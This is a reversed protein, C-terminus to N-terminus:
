RKEVIDTLVEMGEAIDGSVETVLGDTPGVEVEIATPRGNRLVWLRKGANADFSPAGPLGGQGPQQPPVFRLAANPVLLVDKRTDAMISATATMGPRLLLEGNDVALVAEYSVVNQETKPENRLSLVKSAFKRGPYADVTFSAEQGEKVRGVDAEDVYVHLSMRSLDETLKFLVPTQFGANVTQGPEILRSLVIGSIPAVIKTRELRYEASKLAARALTADAQASALNAEARIAAAEATEFDRQSILGKELQTKARTAQAKAEALTARAQKINADAAVIRAKAEEVAAIFQEPDIEALLQGAEVRDNFDVFVKAIRGSVEAGVEVTNLGQITGTATVTVTVEGRTIAATQYSPAQARARAQMWMVILAAVVVLGLLTLVARIVPKRKGKADLGLTRVVEPDGPVNPEHDVM